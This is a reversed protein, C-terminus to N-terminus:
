PALAFVYGAGFLAAALIHAMGFWKKNPETTPDNKSGEVIMFIGSLFMAALLAVIFGRLLMKMSANSGNGYNGSANM